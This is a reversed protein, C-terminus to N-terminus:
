QPIREFVPLAPAEMWGVPYCETTFNWWGTEVRVRKFTDNGLAQEETHWDKVWEAVGIKVGDHVIIQRGDTPAYEM